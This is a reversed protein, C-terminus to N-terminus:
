LYDKLADRLKTLARYIQVKVTNESINLKQAIERYSLEEKRSMHFIKGCEKPLRKIAKEIESDLEDRFLLASSLDEGAPLMLENLKNLTETDLNRYRNHIRTLYNMCTNYVSRYLYKRLSINVTLIEPNEWIKVFLDSVLDEAIEISHVYRRAYKCLSAYYSDFLMEFAHYDGRQIANLLYIETNNLM